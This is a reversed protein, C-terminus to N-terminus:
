PRNAFTKRFPGIGEGTMLPVDWGPGVVPLGAQEFAYAWSRETACSELRSTPVGPMLDQFALQCLSERDTYFIPGFIGYEPRSTYRNEVMARQEEGDWDMLFKQWAVAGAGTWQDRFWPMPPAITTLSDQVLLFRDFDCAVDFAWLLCGTPWAGPLSVNALASKEPATDVFVRITDPDHINLSERCREIWSDGHCAVVILERM